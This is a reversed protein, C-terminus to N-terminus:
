MPMSLDIILARVESRWDAAYRQTDVHHYNHSCLFGKCNIVGEYRRDDIRYTDDVDDAVPQVYILPLEDHTGLRAAPTESFHAEYPEHHLIIRKSTISAGYQTDAAM